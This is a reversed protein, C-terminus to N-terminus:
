SSRAKTRAAPRGRLAHDPGQGGTRGAAGLGAARAVWIVVQLDRLGGPSEKCNPELAYPTDEYKVHRQRMELTKARLFAKADMAAGTAAQFQEFLRRSGCLFRAELLRDAGDRRARWSSASTWPACRRASRWGVDWCATVFGEVADRLGAADATPMPHTRTLCCCCTSTPTPFSSAAATAAWRWWRAGQPMGANSGCRMLTADVHRDPGQDARRRRPPPVPTRSTSSCRRRATAFGPAFRPWTLPARGAARACACDLHAPPQPM